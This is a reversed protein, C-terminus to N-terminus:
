NSDSDNDDNNNIHTYIYIYTYRFVKHSTVAADSLYWSLHFHNRGAERVERFGGPGQFFAFCCHKLILCKICSNPFLDRIMGVAPNEICPRCARIKGLTKPWLEKGRRSVYLYWSLHFNKRGAERLERFGGPSRSFAFLRLKRVRFKIYFDSFM